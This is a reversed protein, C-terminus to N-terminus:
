CFSRRLDVQGEDSATWGPVNGDWLRTIFGCADSLTFQVAVSHETILRFLDFHVQVKGYKERYRHAITQKLREELSDTPM